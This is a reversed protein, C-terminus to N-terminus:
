YDPAHLEIDAVAAVEVTDIRYNGGEMVAFRDGDGLAIL